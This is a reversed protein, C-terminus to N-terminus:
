KKKLRLNKKADFYHFILNYLGALIFSFYICLFFYKQNSFDLPYLSILLLAILIVDQRLINLLKNLFNKQLYPKLNKNNELNCWRTIASFKDLVATDLVFFISSICGIYLM